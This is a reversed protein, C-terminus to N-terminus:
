RVLIDSGLFLHFNGEFFFPLEALWVLWGVLWSGCIGAKLPVNM